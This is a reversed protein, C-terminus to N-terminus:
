GGRPPQPGAALRELGLRALRRLGPDCGPDAEVEGRTLWRFRDAEDNAV